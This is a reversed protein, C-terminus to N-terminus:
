RSSALRFGIESFPVPKGIEWIPDETEDSSQEVNGTVTVQKPPEAAVTSEVPKKPRRRTLYDRVRDVPITIAGDIEIDGKLYRPGENISVVVASRASEYKSQVVADPFGTQRYGAVISKTTHTLFSALEAKPHGAVMMELNVNVADRLQQESFTKQGTFFIRDPSGLEGVSEPAQAGLIGCFLGSILVTLMSIKRKM